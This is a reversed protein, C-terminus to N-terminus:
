SWWPTRLEEEYFSTFAYIMHGMALSAEYLDAAHSVSM